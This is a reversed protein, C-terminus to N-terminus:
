SIIGFAGCVFGAVAIIGIVKLPSLKKQKLLYYCLTVACVPLLYPLIADLTDQIKFVKTVKDIVKTYSLPTSLTLISPVFGGVVVLGVLQAAERIKNFASSEKIDEIVKTSRSYGWKFLPFRCAWLAIFPFLILPISLYNGQAALAAALIYFFPRVLVGYISDGIGALPGMMAVKINDAMEGQYNEELAVVAGPIVSSAFPNSNYFQLHRETNRCVEEDTTYLEKLVPIMAYAFGTAQMREYNWCWELTCNYRFMAKKLASKSVPKNTMAM